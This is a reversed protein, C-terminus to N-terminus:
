VDIIGENKIEFRWITGHSDKTTKQSWINVIFITEDDDAGPFKRGLAEALTELQPKNKWWAVLNNQPQDYNNEVSFLCWITEM